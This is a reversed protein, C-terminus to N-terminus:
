RVKSHQKKQYNQIAARLATVGLNSCHQKEEPLGDLAELVDQDKIQLAEEISKGRALVTTMSGSAIAACCGFVLFSIDRIIGERVRIFMMFKDGCGEDGTAGVGDPNPMYWANRPTMFHEMVKDSYM